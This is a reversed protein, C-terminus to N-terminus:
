PLFAACQFHKATLIELQRTNVTTEKFFFFFFEELM